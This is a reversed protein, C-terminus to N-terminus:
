NEACGKASPITACGEHSDPIVQFQLEETAGGESTYYATLILFRLTPYFRKSSSRSPGRRRRPEPRGAESEASM